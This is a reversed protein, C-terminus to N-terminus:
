DRKEEEIKQIMGTTSYGEIYDILKVCGAYNRGVVEDIKYDAGKVLFDPRIRKLILEPTEERFIIVRDVCGLSAVIYARDDEKNLPRNEGKLKKVSEDSNVAVILHDALLAASYILYAHGRHFIDFCGNTFAIKEGKARWQVVDSILNELNVIKEALKLATSQDPYNIEELTVTATGKKAVVIGAAKNAYQMVDQLARRGWFVGLAAIVTDGAGSVDYVEVATSPIHWCHNQRSFLSMGKESRTVLLYDINLRHFVKKSHYEIESDANSIRISIYESLEKLNPSLLTAGSYKKWEKGKPDVLVPINKEQAEEIVKRCTKTDCVGKAYDSILVIDTENLLERFKLLIKRRDNRTIRQKDNYDVRAIQQNNGIIRMKKITRFDDSQIVGSISIGYDQALEVFERGPEDKGIIGVLVAEGGLSAVNNAVNASGGLRFYHSNLQVVPIPAEPSIKEVLGSSYEDLIIDGIILVKNKDINM